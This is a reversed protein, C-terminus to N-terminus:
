NIGAAVRDDGMIQFVKDSHKLQFINVLIVSGYLPVQEKIVPFIGLATLEQSLCYRITQEYVWGNLGKTTPERGEAVPLSTLLQRAASLNEQYLNEIKDKDYKM